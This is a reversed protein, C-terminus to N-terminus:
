SSYMCVFVQSFDSRALDGKHIVYYLDGADSWQMDGRSKVTLLVLYDAPDGGQALAAETQPLEHQSFGYDGMLHDFSSGVDGLRIDLDGLADDDWGDDPDNTLGAAQLAERFLYTNQGLPYLPPLGLTTEAEADYGTYAYGEGTSSYAEFFDEDTLEFRDGSLLAGRGVDHHIVLGPRYGEANNYLDHFTSLFFYLYGTRPLYRQLPALAACELQAIFEYAYGDDPQEEQTWSAKFRPYAEGTPLDPLGGFRHVGLRSYDVPTVEQRFGVAAQATLRVFTQVALGAEPDSLLQELMASRAPDDDIKYHAPDYDGGGSAVPKPALRQRIALDIELHEIREIGAPLTELPNNNLNLRVLQPCGQLLSVPLTQLKNHQLQLTELAPLNVGEPLATLQNQSLTLYKLKPLRWLGAPTDTLQCAHVAVNELNELASISEPLHHLKCGQVLLGRLERLEGIWDPLARLNGYSNMHRYALRLYELGTFRRVWDPLEPINVRETDLKRVREPPASAVEELSTYRYHELALSNADIPVTATLEFSRQKAYSAYMSGAFRVEDGSFEVTGNFRLSSDVGQVDCYKHTNPEKGDKIDLLGRPATSDRLVGLAGFRLEVGGAGEDSPETWDYLLGAKQAAIFDTQSLQARLTVLLEGTLEAVRVGSAEASEDVYWDYPGLKFM